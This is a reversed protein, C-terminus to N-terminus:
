KKRWVSVTHIQFTQPLTDIPRLSILEYGAAAFNRADRAATSINPNSYVIRRPSVNVIAQGADNSLGKEDTDLVLVDPKRGIGGLADEVWDNYLAVNETHELNVAADEIADPNVEIGVVEDAYTALADTLVGAGSYCDFVLEDGYLMAMDIVAATIMEASDPSIHFHTGASVRYLHGGIQQVLFPDGILTASVGDPMVLAVSVPFDIEITPPEADRMEFALAVSDDAGVRVHLKLLDALELDIDRVVNQLTPHLVPCSAVPVVAGHSRSWYGLGGRETRSLTTTMRYGWQQPHPTIPEASIRKIKGVRQFQDVAIQEKFRLQAKYKIHQFDTIPIDAPQCRPTIRDASTKLLEVIEAEVIRGRENIIRIQATENPLGGAVFITKGSAKAIAKAGHAM